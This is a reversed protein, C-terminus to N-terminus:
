RIRLEGMLSSMEDLYPQAWRVGSSLRWGGYLNRYRKSMEGLSEPTAIRSMRRFESLSAPNRVQVALTGDVRRIESPHADFFRSARLHVMALPELESAKRVAYNNTKCTYKTPRGRWRAFRRRVRLLSSQPEILDREWLYGTADPDYADLLRQALTPALWDDDDVPVLLAGDPIDELRSTCRAGEVRSLSLAAVDKMRQRFLHYPITFTANWAAVLPRAEPILNETVLAEDKWDLTRRVWIHVPVSM